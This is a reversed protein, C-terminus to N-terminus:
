DFRRALAAEAEAVIRAVIAGAPEVAHILDVSEGAWVAATDFDERRQAEGYRTKEGGARDLEAERGHWAESFRNALARGTFEVPWPADSAIDFIRTRVTDDGSGAALRAKGGPAAICEDSAYFRTGMLVGSAGLILAAALGRGDAIGGAAVVLAGTGFSAVLDVVAPVLALTGRRTSGHGGAEGGQAVIIDAGQQLVERAMAVTQVQCIVPIGANKIRPIFPGADGFSLMVAVPTHALVVDLM